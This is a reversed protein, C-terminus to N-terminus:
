ASQDKLFEKVLTKLVDHYHSSSNGFGITRDETKLSYEIRNEQCLTVWQVAQEISQQKLDSMEFTIKEENASNYEKTNLGRGRAVLKWDVRSFSDGPSFPRHGSFDEGILSRTSPLEQQGSPQPYVFFEAAKKGVIWTKFLGYPYSTTLDVRDIGYRGWAKVLPYTIEIQVLSQPPIQEIVGSYLDPKFFRRKKLNEVGVKINYVPDKGNNRVVIRALSKKEAFDSEVELFVLELDRINRATQIITVLGLALLIFAMMFVLNNQYTGGVLLMLLFVLFFIFGFRNPM